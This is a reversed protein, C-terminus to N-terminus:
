WWRWGVGPGLEWLLGHLALPPLYCWQQYHAREQCAPLMSSPLPLPPTAEVVLDQVSRTRPVVRLWCFLRGTGKGWNGGVDTEAGTSHLPLSKAVAARVPVLRGLIPNGTLNFHASSYNSVLTNKIGGQLLYFLTVGWKM